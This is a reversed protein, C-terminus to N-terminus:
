EPWGNRPIPSKEGTAFMRRCEVGGNRVDVFDVGVGAWSSRSAVLEIAWSAPVGGLMAGLAMDGGAGDGWPVSFMEECIGNGQVRWLRPTEGISVVIGKTEDRTSFDLPGMNGRLYECYRMCDGANGCMAYYGDGDVGLTTLPVRHLKTTQYWVGNSIWGAMDAALIRGDFAITTM